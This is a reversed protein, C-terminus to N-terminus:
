PLVLRAVMTPHYVCAYDVPGKGTAVVWTFSAGAALTRSDFRGDRATVTHPVLDRNTWTVRDGPRVQLTAPSFRMDEIAVALARGKAPASAARPPAAGALAPLLAALAAAHLLRLAPM